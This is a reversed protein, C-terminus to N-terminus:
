PVLDGYEHHREIFRAIYSCQPVVQLKEARAWDLATRALQAAVGNGRLAPPVFTHTFVVRAGERQYDILATEEGTGLEFRQSVSDHRVADHPANM